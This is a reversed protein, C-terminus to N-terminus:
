YLIPVARIMFPHSLLEMYVASHVCVHTQRGETIKETLIYLLVTKVGIVVFSQLRTETM